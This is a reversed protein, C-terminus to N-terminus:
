GDGSAEASFFKELMIFKDTRLGRNGIYSWLKLLKEDVIKGRFLVENLDSM